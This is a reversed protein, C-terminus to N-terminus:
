FIGQLKKLLLLNQFISKQLSREYKLVKDTNETAPAMGLMYTLKDAADNSIKDLSLKANEEELHKKERTYIEILKSSIEKPDVYGYKQLLSHLQDLTMCSSNYLMEREGKTLNSISKAARYLDDIIDSEFEDKKWVPQDFTVIGQALYEIFRINWEIVKQNHQIEKDIKRNDKLGYSYFKGLLDAIHKAISGTEFRITRRLRWFDVAIKEVLLNEMQNCPLLCDILNNLIAQYEEESEQGIESSIILATTFIGHKIANIAVVAKGEATMPGTSQQANQLNTLLQKETTM